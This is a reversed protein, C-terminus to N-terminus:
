AGESRCPDEADAPRCAGSFNFFFSLLLEPSACWALWFVARGAASSPDSGISGLAGMRDLVGGAPHDTEDFFRAWLLLSRPGLAALPVLWMDFLRLNEARWALLDPHMAAAHPM